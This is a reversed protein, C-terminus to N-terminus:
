LLLRHAVFDVLALGFLEGLRALPLEQQLLPPDLDDEVLIPLLHQLPLVAPVLLLEILLHLLVGFELSAEVTGLTPCALEGLVNPLHGLLPLKVRLSLLM